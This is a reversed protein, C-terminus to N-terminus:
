SIVSKLEEEIDWNDIDNNTLPPFKNNLDSIEVGNSSFAIVDALDIKGELIQDCGECSVETLQEPSDFNFYIIVRKPDTIYTYGCQPCRIHGLYKM